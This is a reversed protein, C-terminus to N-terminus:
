WIPGWNHKHQKADGSSISIDEVSHMLHRVEVSLIKELYIDKKHKSFINHKWM